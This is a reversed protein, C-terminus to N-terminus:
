SLPSWCIPRPFVRSIIHDLMMMDEAEMVVRKNRRGHISMMNSASSHSLVGDSTSEHTSNTNTGGLERVVFQHLSQGGGPPRLKM